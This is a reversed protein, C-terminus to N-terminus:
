AQRVKSNAVTMLKDLAFEQDYERRELQDIRKQKSEIMQLLKQLNVNELVEFERAKQELEELRKSKSARYQLLKQKERSEQKIDEKLRDIIKEQMAIEHQSVELEQKLIKERKESEALQEWLTSNSTLQQQLNDVKFDHRSQKIGDKFGLFLRQLRMFRQIALLEERSEAESEKLREMEELLAMNAKEGGFGDAKQNNGKKLLQSYKDKLMAERSDFQKPEEKQISVKMRMEIQCINDHVQEKLSASMNDTFRLFNMKMEELQMRADSLDKDYYLRVKEKVGSELAYINDKILRLQRAGKDLEYILNNGRSFVKTNVIKNLEEKAHRLKHEMALLQQDKSYLQNEYEKILLYLQECRTRMEIEGYQVIGRCLERLTENLDKSSIVIGHGSTLTEIELCRNKLQTMM